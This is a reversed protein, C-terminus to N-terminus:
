LNERQSLTEKFKDWEETLEAVLRPHDVLKGMWADHTLLWPKSFEFMEELLDRCNYLYMGISDPYVPAYERLLKTLEIVLVRGILPEENKLIPEGAAKARKNNQYVKMATMVYEAKELGKFAHQLQPHKGEVVQEYGMLLANKIEEPLELSAIAIRAMRSEVKENDATKFHANIDGIGEGNIVAEGWDHNLIGHLFINQEEQSFRHPEYKLFTRAIHYMLMGHKFDISTVGLRKTFVEDSEDLRLASWRIIEKLSQGAESRGFAEMIASFTELHAM